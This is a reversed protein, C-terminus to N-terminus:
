SGIAMSNPVRFLPVSHAWLDNQKLLEKFGRGRRSLPSELSCTSSSETPLAIPLNFNWAEEAGYAVPEWLRCQCSKEQAQAVAAALAWSPCRYYVSYVRVPMNKSMVQNLGGSFPNRMSLGRQVRLEGTWGYGHCQRGRLTKESKKGPRGGHGLELLLEVSFVFIATALWALTSVRRKPFLFGRASGSIILVALWCRPSLSSSLTEIPPPESKAATRSSKPEQRLM